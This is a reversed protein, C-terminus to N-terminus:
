FFVYEFFHFVGGPLIKLWDLQNETKYNLAFFVVNNAVFSKSFYLAIPAIPRSAFVGWKDSIIPMM